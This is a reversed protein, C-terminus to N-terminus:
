RHFIAAFLIILWMMSFYSTYNLPIDFFLVNLSILTLAPVMLFLFITIIVGTIVEINLKM